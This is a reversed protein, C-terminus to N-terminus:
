SDSTSADFSEAMPNLKKRQHTIPTPNSSKLSLMYNKIQKLKTYLAFMYEDTEDVEEAMDEESIEESDFQSNRAITMM